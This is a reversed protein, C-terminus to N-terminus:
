PVDSRLARSPISSAAIAQPPRSFIALVGAIMPTTLGFLGSTQSSAIAPASSAHASAPWGTITVGNRSAPRVAGTESAAPRESWTASASEPTASACATLDPAGHRNPENKVPTSM